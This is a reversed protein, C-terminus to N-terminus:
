TAPRVRRVIVGLLRHNYSRRNPAIRLKIPGTVALELSEQRGALFSALPAGTAVDLVECSLALRAIEVDTRVHLSLLEDGACLISEPVVCEIVDTNGVKRTFDVALVCARPEFKPEGAKAKFASPPIHFEHVTTIM